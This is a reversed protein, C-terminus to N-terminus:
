PTNLAAGGGVLAQVATTCGVDAAHMLATWNGSDQLNLAAGADVLAQVTEAHGNSAAYMLATWSRNDKLNLDAGAGALVHVAETHGGVAARIVATYGAHDLKNKEAGGDLLAQVAAANGNTAAYHLPEMGANELLRRLLPAFRPAGEGGDAWGADAAAGGRLFVPAKLALALEAPDQPARPIVPSNSGCPAIRTADSTALIGGQSM